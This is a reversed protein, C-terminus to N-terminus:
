ATDECNQHRVNGWCARPARQTLSCHSRFRVLTRHSCTGLCREAEGCPPNRTRHVVLQQKWKQSVRFLPFEGNGGSRFNASNSTLKSSGIVWGDDHIVAVRYNMCFPSSTSAIVMFDIRFRARAPRTPRITLTRLYRWRLRCKLARWRGREGEPL